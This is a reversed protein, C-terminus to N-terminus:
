VPSTIFRGKMKPSAARITPIGTILDKSRIKDARSFYALCEAIQGNGPHTNCGMKTSDVLLMVYM